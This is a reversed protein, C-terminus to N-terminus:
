PRKLGISTIVCPCIQGQPERVGKDFADALLRDVCGSVLNRHDKLCRLRLTQM